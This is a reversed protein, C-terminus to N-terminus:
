KERVIDHYDDGWAYRSIKGADPRSDHERPTYYNLALAIVSKADPLIESPDVRKEAWRQMWAMEGHYGADLWEFLRAGEEKLPEARAIGVKHFGIELARAKIRHSISQM